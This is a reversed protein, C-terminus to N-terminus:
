ALVLGLILQRRTLLSTHQKWSALLTRSPGGCGSSVQGSLREEGSTRGYEGPGCPTATHQCVKEHAIGRVKVHKAIGM